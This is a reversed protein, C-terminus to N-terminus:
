RALFLKPRGALCQFEGSSTFKEDVYYHGHRHYRTTQAHAFRATPFGARKMIRVAVAPSSARSLDKDTPVVCIASWSRLAGVLRLDYSVDVTVKEYAESTQGSARWVDGTLRLPVKWSEFFRPVASSVASEESFAFMDIVDDEPPPANGEICSSFEKHVSAHAPVPFFYLGSQPLPYSRNDEAPTVITTGRGRLLDLTPLDVNVPVNSDTISQVTTTNAKITGDCDFAQIFRGSLDTVHAGEMNYPSPNRYHEAARWAALAAAQPSRGPDLALGVHGTWGGPGPAVTHWDIALTGAASGTPVAGGAPGTFAAM